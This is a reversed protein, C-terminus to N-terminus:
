DRWVGAGDGWAHLRTAGLPSVVVAMDRSGNNLYIAGAGTGIGGTTCDDSFAHVAGTPRFMVWTADNGAADTFSSGTTEDGNGGDTAVKGLANGLGPMVDRDLSFGVVAENPDVSCNQLLAGPRGDDVILMDVVTGDIDVLPNGDADQGFFALHINGSSVAQSRARSLIASVSQTSNTLRQNTAWRGMAPVALASLVGAISM